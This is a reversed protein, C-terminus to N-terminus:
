PFNTHLTFTISCQHLHRAGEDSAAYNNPGFEESLDELDWHNFMSPLPGNLRQQIAEAVEAAKNADAALCHATVAPMFQRGEVFQGEDGRLGDVSLIVLPLGADDPCSGRYIRGAVLASLATDANLWPVLALYFSNPLFTQTRM